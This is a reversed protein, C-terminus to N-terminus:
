ELTFGLSSLLNRNVQSKTLRGDQIRNVLEEKVEFRELRGLNRPDFRHWLHTIVQKLQGVTMIKLDQHWRIVEADPVAGATDERPYGMEDVVIDDFLVYDVDEVRDRTAAL